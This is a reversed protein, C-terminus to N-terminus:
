TRLGWTPRSPSASSPSTTAFGKACPFHRTTRTTSAADAAPRQDSSGDLLDYGGMHLSQTLATGLISFDESPKYLLSLRGGYLTENNADHYVNTM